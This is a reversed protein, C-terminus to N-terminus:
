LDVNQCVKEGAVGLMLAQDPTSCDVSFPLVMDVRSWTDSNSNPGCAFSTFHGNQIFNAWTCLVLSLLTLKEM